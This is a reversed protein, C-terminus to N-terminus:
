QITASVKDNFSNFAPVTFQQSTKTIGDAYIQLTYNLAASSSNQGQVQLTAQFSSYSERITKSWSTTSDVASASTFVGLTDIYQINSLVSFNDSVIKYTITRTATATSADKKCSFLICLILLTCITLCRTGKYM